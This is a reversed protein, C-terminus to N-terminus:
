PVFFEDMDPANAAGNPFSTVGLGRLILRLTSEHQYLTTSRYGPKSRPSAAVWVVPGGGHTTDSKDAEDFTVILLGNNQFAANSLFPGVNTQLWADATALPGSHADHAEDPVVFSFDPLTGAALDAAFTGEFPVINNRQTPSNIVDSLYAFPNHHKTYSGKDGGVYGVSPLGQAYCKWTRGAALLERVVNDDTVTGSYSDSNTIPKGVALVFYNPLSPHSNAYYNTALGYQSALGNLYPMSTNGIVSSYSTNEELVIVIHGFRRSGTTPRTVSITATGPMGECTATITARGAALATVLGAGDVRAILTRDSSWTVIRGSLAHGSGDRPTATLQVTAGEPVSVTDPAILVTAVHVADVTVTSSGIMGECTATVTAQGAAMGSVLGNADVKAVTQHDSQWTVTRGRLSVGNTDKPTASLQLVAGVGVSATIPTVVVTAVPLTSTPATPNSGSSSCGALALLGFLVAAGLSAGRFGQVVSGTM